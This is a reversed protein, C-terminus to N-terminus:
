NVKRILKDFNEKASITRSKFEPKPAKFKLYTADNWMGVLSFRVEDKTSNHGSRHFMHPDFFLIEGKKM